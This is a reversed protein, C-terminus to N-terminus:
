TKDEREAADLRMKLDTIVEDLFDKYEERTLRCQDTVEALCSNLKAIGSKYAQKSM